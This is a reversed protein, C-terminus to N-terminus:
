SNVPNPYKARSIKSVPEGPLLFGPHVPNMTLNDSGCSGICFSSVESMDIWIGDFSILSHWMALENAWWENAGTGNLASGVWDPFVTYGPWVEGIYLSGDPNLMFADSANGRNFTPYADSENTPNPVYIASDIIPIYHLGSAHIKSLFVAAESYGFTNQDNEFDRFQNM